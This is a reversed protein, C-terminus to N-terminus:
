KIFTWRTCQIVCGAIGIKMLTFYVNLKDDSNEFLQSFRNGVIAPIEDNEENQDRLVDIMLLEAHRRGPEVPGDVEVPLQFLYESWFLGLLLERCKSFSVPGSENYKIGKLVRYSNKLRIL